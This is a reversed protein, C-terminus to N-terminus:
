YDYELGGLLTVPEDVKKNEELGSIREQLEGKERELTTVRQQLDQNQRQMEAIQEEDM